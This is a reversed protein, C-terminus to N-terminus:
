PRLSRRWIRGSCNLWVAGSPGLEYRSGDPSVVRGAPGGDVNGAALEEAAM